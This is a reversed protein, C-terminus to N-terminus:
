FYPARHAEEDRWIVKLRKGDVLSLLKTDPFIMWFRITSFMKGVFYRCIELRKYFRAIIGRLKNRPHIAPHHPLYRREASCLSNSRLLHSFERWLHGGAQQPPYNM